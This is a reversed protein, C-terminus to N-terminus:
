KDLPALPKVLVKDVRLCAIAPLLDYNPLAAAGPVRGVRTSVYMQHDRICVVTTIGNNIVTAAELVPIVLAKRGQERILSSVPQKLISGTTFPTCGSNAAKSINGIFPHGKLQVDFNAAPIEVIVVVM